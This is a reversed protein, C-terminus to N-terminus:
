CPCADPTGRGARRRGPGPPRRRGAARTGSSGRRVPRRGGRNWPTPKAGGQFLAAIEAPSLARDYARVDDVAGDVAGDLFDVPASGLRGRGVVFPGTSTDPNGLVGLTGALTGDVHVLLEAATIDRVGVVHHWRGAVPEGVTTALARGGAFSFALRGTPM